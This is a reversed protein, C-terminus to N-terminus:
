VEMRVTTFVKLSWSNGDDRDVPIIDVVGPCDVATVVVSYTGNYFGDETELDISGSSDQSSALETGNNRIAVNFVDNSGVDDNWVLVARFKTANELIEGLDLDTSTGEQTFGDLGFTEIEVYEYQPEPPPPYYKDANETLDIDIAVDTIVIAIILFIASFCPLIIDMPLRRKGGMRQVPVKGM